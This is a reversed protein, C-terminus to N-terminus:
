LICMYMRWLMYDWLNRYRNMGARLGAYSSISYEEGKANRVTAYFERLIKNLEEKGITTLDTVVNKQKCWTEFCRTSWNTQKVTGPESRCLELRDLEKESIDSHRKSFNSTSPKEEDELDLWEDM